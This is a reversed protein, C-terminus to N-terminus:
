STTCTLPKEYQGLAAAYLGSSQNRVGWANKALVAVMPWTPTLVHRAKYPLDHDFMLAGSVLAWNWFRVSCLTREFHGLLVHLSNGGLAPLRQYESLVESGNGDRAEADRHTRNYKDMCWLDEM